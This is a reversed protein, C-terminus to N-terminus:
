SRDNWRGFRALTAQLADHPLAPLSAGGFGKMPRAAVLANVIAEEVSEVTAEFLPDLSETPLADFRRLRRAGYRSRNATSFALFLDGSSTAAISGVRGLGLSARKALPGLQSPLLPADTALVVVISGDGHPGPDLRDRPPAAARPLRPLPATMERGVPVGAIRLQHRRGFNAQVLAGLTFRGLPHAVVRSASGTGAKFGFSIMGTGGGVSGEPLPGTAAQDLAAWADAAALHQGYADNLIGDWTESVVPKTRGRLVDPPLDRAHSWAVLADRVVGVSLTNTLALPGYLAGYEDLFATGTMEGMGNLVFRGAAVGEEADRGLPHVATVGTRVVPGGDPDDPDGEIRTRVGVEVGAVDTLANWPGPTGDFPVGLDRARPPAASM